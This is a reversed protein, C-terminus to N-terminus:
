QALEVVAPIAVLPTRTRMNSQHTDECYRVVPSDDTAICDETKVMVELLLDEALGTEKIRGRIM